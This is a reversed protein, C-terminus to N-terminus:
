DKKEIIVHKGSIKIEYDLFDKSKITKYLHNKFYQDTGTSGCLLKLEDVSLTHSKKDTCTYNAVEYLIRELSSKLKFYNRNLKILKKQIIADWVYKPLKISIATKNRSSIELKTTEILKLIRFNKLNNELNLNKLSFTTESIRILSNKFHTYVSGASSKGLSNLLLHVTIPIPSYPEILKESILYEAKSLSYIFIAKDLVTALGIASPKLIIISNGKEIKCKSKINLSFIPHYIDDDFFSKLLLRFDYDYLNKPEVSYIEQNNM